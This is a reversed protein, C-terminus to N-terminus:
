LPILSSKWAEPSPGVLHDTIGNASLPFMPPPTPKSSPCHLLNQVFESQSIHSFTLPLHQQDPLQM